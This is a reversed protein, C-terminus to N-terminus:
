KRSLIPVPMEITFARQKRDVPAPVGVFQVFNKDDNSQNTKSFEEINIIRGHNDIDGLVYGRTNFNAYGNRISKVLGGKNKRKGNVKIM